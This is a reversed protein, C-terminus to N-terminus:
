PRQWPFTRGTLREVQAVSPAFREVLRRRTAADMTGPAANLVRAPAPAAPPLGLFAAVQDRAGSPDAYYEESALVLLADRDYHELWRALGRDYESQAAYSQQEHAFSRWSPDALLREEEGATRESEAALAEEFGLTEVGNRRQEKWHSFTREVPDRLLVVLKADPLDRAARAPALPHYLYYPSAEGTVVPGRARAAMRRTLVSPFHGRYWSLGADYHSDFFHPGKGDRQKPLWRATPFMPLVGPHELLTFYFSTTGARKAGIVLYDPLPRVAATVRGYTRFAERGAVVLPEPLVRGLAQPRLDRSRAGDGAAQGASARM